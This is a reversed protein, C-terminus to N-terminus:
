TLRDRNGRYALVPEGPEDGDAAARRASARIADPDLWTSAPQPREFAFYRHLTLDRELRFDLLGIEV